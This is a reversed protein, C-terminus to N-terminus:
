SPLPVPGGMSNVVDAELLRQRALIMATQDGLEISHLSAWFWLPPAATLSCVVNPTQRVYSEPTGM